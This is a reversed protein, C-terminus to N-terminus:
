ATQVSVGLTRSLQKSSVRKKSSCLLYAAQLWVHLPVHSREFITGIRVTIQARCDYCKKLGIRERGLKDRVGNLPRIRGMSGCKPCVPGNAWVLRELEAFAAQEDNFCAETLLSAM